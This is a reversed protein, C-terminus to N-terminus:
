HSGLTPPPSGALRGREIDEATAGWGVAHVSDEPKMQQRLIHMRRPGERGSTPAAILGIFRPDGAFWVIAIQAKLESKARPAMRRNWWETRLHHPFVLALRQGPRSPNPFEFWGHQKGEVEPHKGLGFSPERVIQWPYVRLIRRMRLAAPFYFLQLVVRYMSYALLPIFLVIFGQSLFGVLVALLGVWVAIWGILGVANM